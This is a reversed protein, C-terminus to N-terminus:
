PLDYTITPPYVTVMGAGAATFRLPVPAMEAGGQSGGLWASLAATLDLTRRGAAGAPAAAAPRGGLSLGVPASPARAAASGAREVFHHLARLGELANRAGGALRVVASSSDAAALWVARGAAATVVVWCPQPALVVPPDLPVPVWRRRGARELAVTGSALPRGSPGGQWEEHVEVRLETGPEVVLLALSIGTALLPAGPVTRQAVGVGPALAAGVDEGLAERVPPRGDPTASRDEGFSEALEVTGARVVADASLEARLERAEGDRGGFRLVRKGGDAIEEPYAAELLLRNLRLRETGAAGAAARERLAEPLDVAAFRAPQYLPEAQLVRNLEGLLEARLAEPPEEAGARDLRERLPAALAGRLFASVPDRAERLRAALAAADRLDGEHLLRGRFSERVLSYHIRLRTLRFRCPADSEVVLAVEVTEPLPSPLSGLHRQLAAAMEEGANVDGAQAGEGPRSFFVAASPDAAPAIGIRAGTPLGRLGLGTLDGPALTRHASGSRQRVAFRLDVFPPDAPLATGSAASVTPADALTNGDVRYVEVTGGQRLRAWRLQLPVPLALLLATGGGLQTPPSLLHALTLDAPHFTGELRSPASHVVVRDAHGGTRFRLYLVRRYFPHTPGAVSGDVSWVGAARVEPGGRATAVTQILM